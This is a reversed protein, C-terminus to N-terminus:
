TAGSSYGALAAEISTAPHSPVLLLVLILELKESFIRFFESCTIRRIPAGLGLQISEISETRKVVYQTPCCSGKRWHGGEESKHRRSRVGYM